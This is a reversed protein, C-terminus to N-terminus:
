IIDDNEFKCKTGTPAEATENAAFICQEKAFEGTFRTRINKPHEGLQGVHCGTAFIAFLTIILLLTKM